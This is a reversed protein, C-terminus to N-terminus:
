DKSDRINAFFHRRPLGDAEKMGTACFETGCTHMAFAYATKLELPKMAELVNSADCWLGERMANVMDWHPIQAVEVGWREKAFRVPAELVELDPIWYWQFARVSAFHKVCLDMVAVSEKGGS